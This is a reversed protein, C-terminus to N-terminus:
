KDCESRVDGGAEKEINEEGRGYLIELKIDEKGELYGVSDVKHKGYYEWLHSTMWWLIALGVPSM